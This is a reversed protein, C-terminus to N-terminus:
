MHGVVSHTQVERREKSRVGKRNDDRERQGEGRM